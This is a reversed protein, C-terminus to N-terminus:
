SGAEPRMVASPDAGSRPATRALWYAWAVLVGQLPLRAWLLADPLLSGNLPLHNLAMNVNAPFVAVYLAVLGWAAARQLCPVLLGVGGAIEFFGSVYVIALPHPLYAPVIAVFGAPQGFHALGAGTMIVALLLRLFGRAM